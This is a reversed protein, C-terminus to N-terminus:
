KKVDKCTLSENKCELMGVGTRRIVLICNMVRKRDNKARKTAANAAGMGALIVTFESEIVFTLHPAGLHITKRWEAM